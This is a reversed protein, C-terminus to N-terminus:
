CLEESKQTMNIEHKYLVVTINDEGGQDNALTVLHDAKEQLSWSSILVKEMEETTIKNSLGDSCLLLLDEEELCVTKLDIDVQENTGLARILINKKPHHDADEQSIQGSKVLENVLSHDETIQSFGDKNLLYCRSDGIHGVTVFQNAFLAGVFTTGMGQCESHANAHQHITLNIDSIQQKLWNEAEEPTTINTQNNWREKFQEVTMQSAKDGALHGGMGDAVVALLHNRQNVFVGVSDENHTRVKGQDTIHVVNM